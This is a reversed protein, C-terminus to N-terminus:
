NSAAARRRASVILFAAGAALLLGGGALAAAPEIGTDPLAAAAVPDATIAFEAFPAAGSDFGFGGLTATTPQVGSSAVFTYSVSGNADAVLDALSDGSQGYGIGINVAEGPIFGTFTGTVGTSTAQSVTVSTTSLTATPVPLFWHRDGAWDISAITASTGPDVLAGFALVEYGAGLATEFDALTATSQAAYLTTGDPQNIDGSTTWVSASFLGTTSSVPTRLTTFEPNTDIDNDDAFFVPIQFFADGSVVNISANDVLGVLGTAPTLGNLVQYSAGVGTLTLGSVGTEHTGLSGGGVFWSDAYTAGEVGFDSDDVYFDAAQAAGAGAFVTAGVLLVGAGAATIRSLKM